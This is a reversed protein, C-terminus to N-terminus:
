VAANECKCDDARIESDGGSRRQIEQVSESGSGGVVVNNNNRLTSSDYKFRINESLIKNGHEDESAYERNFEAIDGWKAAGYEQGHM